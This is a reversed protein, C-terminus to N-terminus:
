WGRRVSEYPEMRAARASPYLAAVTGTSIALGLSLGVLILIRILSPWIYPVGLITIIYNGFFRLVIFGSAVGVVGGLLTLLIAESMIMSFIFNRTGGMSRLLGIERRRENVSLLFISSIFLISLGWLLGAAMSIGALV